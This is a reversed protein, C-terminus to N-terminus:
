WFEAGLYNKWLIGVGLFALVKKKGLFVDGWLFNKWVHEKKLFFGWGKKAGGQHPLPIVAESQTEDMKKEM